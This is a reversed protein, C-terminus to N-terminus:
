IGQYPAPQIIGVARRYEEETIQGNRRLWDLLHCYQNTSLIPKINEAIGMRERVFNVQQERLFGRGALDYAIRIADVSTINLGGERRMDTEVDNRDLLLLDQM